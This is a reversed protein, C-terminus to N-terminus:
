GTGVKMDPLVRRTNPNRTSMAMEVEVRGVASVGLSGTSAPTSHGAARPHQAGSPQHILSLSVADRVMDARVDRFNRPQRLV